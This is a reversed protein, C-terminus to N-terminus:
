YPENFSVKPRLTTFTNKEIENFNPHTARWYTDLFIVIEKVVKPLENEKLVLDFADKGLRLLSEASALQAKVEHVTCKDNSKILKRLVKLNEIRIYIIIPALFSNKLQIPNDINGNELLVLNMKNSEEFIKEAEMCFMENLDTSHLKNGINSIADQNMKCVVIRDKFYDKLCDFIGKQLFDTVHYGKLSPGIFCVPRMPPVVDYYMAQNYIIQGGKGTTTETSSSSNSKKLGRQLIKFRHTRIQQFKTPTPIFGMLAGDEVLRGIWWDNNFKEYIHLFQGVQFSVAKGPVPIDNELCGNYPLLTRVAFSVKKKKAQELKKKGDNELLAKMKRHCERGDIINTLSDNNKELNVAKRENLVTNPEKYSIIFHQLNSRALAHM